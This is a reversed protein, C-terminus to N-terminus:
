RKLSFNAEVTKGDAVTITQEAAKLHSNWIALQYTGAPVNEIKFNGKADVAAQYPNQGVFIYALMEPHISCLQSYAGPNTFTHSASTLPKIMGLNYATNDPSFVNHDVGDHNLFDVTDGATITLLHPIFKMGKQDMSVKKNKFPGNAEKVYVVTEELYKAPTAEVKGRIIGGAAFAVAPLLILSVASAFGFAFDRM